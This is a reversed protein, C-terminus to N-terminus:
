KDTEGHDMAPEIPIEPLSGALNEDKEISVLELEYILASNPPIKDFQREGYGLEAPVFLQWKSGTKMLQLAESWAPIMDDVKVPAPEGGAYSSDFEMGNLLTGRYNVRVINSALPSPGSGEAVIKYQLGSKLTIVGERSKNASLFAEGDRKNKASLANMRINYRIMVEKRLQKLNERIEEIKIMPEKGNLAERIAAFLINQDLDVEQTKLNNGFEYGLSYSDKTKKDTLPIGDEACCVSVMFLLGASITMLRIM